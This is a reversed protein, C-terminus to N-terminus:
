PLEPAHCEGGCQDWQLVPWVARRRGLLRRAAKKGSMAMRQQPWHVPGVGRSAWWRTGGHECACGGGVKFHSRMEMLNTMDVENFTSLMAYTNQANKLREAVRMRLRTMKVRREPRQPPRAPAAPEAPAEAVPKPPPPAAVPAAAAAPQVEAAPKAAAVPAADANEEVNAFAQGVTVNDGEAVLVEKVVGPVKSQWRIDITVKDTDIQAIM